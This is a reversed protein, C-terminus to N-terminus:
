QTFSRFVPYGQASVSSRATISRKTCTDGDGENGDDENLYKEDSDCNDKRMYQNWIVRTVTQLSCDYYTALKSLAQCRSFRRQTRLRNYYYRCYARDKRSLLQLRKLLRDNRWLHIIVKRDLPKSDMALDFHSVSDKRYM